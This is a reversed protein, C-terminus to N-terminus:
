IGLSRSWIIKERTMDWPGPWMWPRKLAAREAIRLLAAALVTGAAGIGVVAFRLDEM